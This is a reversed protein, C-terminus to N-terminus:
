DQTNLQHTESIKQANIRQWSYPKNTPEKEKHGLQFVRGFGSLPPFTTSPSQSVTAPTETM